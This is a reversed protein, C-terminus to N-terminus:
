RLEKGCHPCKRKTADIRKQLSVIQEALKYMEQVAPSNFLAVPDVVTIGDATIHYGRDDSM